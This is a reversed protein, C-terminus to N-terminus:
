PHSSTGNPPSIDTANAGTLVAVLQARSPVGLSRYIHTLRLEVTRVSVSLEEAIERNRLGHVVRKAVEQEDPNLQELMEAGDGTAPAAERATVLQDTRVAWGDAGSAQFAAVAAMRTHRSEVPM